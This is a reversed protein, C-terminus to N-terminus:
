EAAAGDAASDPRLGLFATAEAFSSVCLTETTGDTRPRSLVVNAFRGHLHAQRVGDSRTETAVSAGSRELLSRLAAALETAEARTPVRYRGSREDLQIAREGIWATKEAVPPRREVARRRGQEAAGALGAQVGIIALSAVVFAGRGLRAGRESRNM